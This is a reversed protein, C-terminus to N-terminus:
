EGAKLKLYGCQDWGTLVLSAQWDWAKFLNSFFCIVSLFRCFWATLTVHARFTRLRKGSVSHNLTKSIPLGNM